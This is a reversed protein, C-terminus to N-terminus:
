RPLVRPPRPPAATAAAEGATGHDFGELLSEGGIDAASVGNRNRAPGQAKIENERGIAHPGAVLHDRGGIGEAFAGLRNRSDARM